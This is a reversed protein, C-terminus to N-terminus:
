KIGVPTLFHFGFYTSGPANKKETNKSFVSGHIM